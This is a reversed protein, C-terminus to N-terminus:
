KGFIINILAVLDAIDVKGDKNMDAASESIGTAVGTLYEMLAVVDEADTKGNGNVDPDGTLTGDPLDGVLTANLNPFKTQWLTVYNGPVHFKTSKDKKFMDGSNYVYEYYDWTLNNPNAYFYVDDLMDCGHGIGGKGISTVGKGVTMKTMRDCNSFAFRNITTVQDPIEYNKLNHNNIFAFDGITKVSTPIVTVPTGIFVENTATLIVANCNDRSDYLPNGEAVTLKSINNGRFADRWVDDGIVTLTSPLHVERLNDLWGFACSGISKLGEPFNITSLNNCGSFADEGISEISSSLSVKKLNSLGAMSNTGISKVGNEIVAEAINQFKYWPYDYINRYNVDDYGVNKYDPMEGNGSITLRCALKAVPNGNESVYVNYDLAEVKWTLDGTTGQEQASVSAPLLVALMMAARMSFHKLAEKRKM